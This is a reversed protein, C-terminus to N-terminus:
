GDTGMGTLAALLAEGDPVGLGTCPDWGTVADYAGNNGQSIDRFGPTATGARAAAYLRTQALGLPTGTAQALRALLAAWLPAVASTGGIVLDTGDVRVKYGTRPDAVAAVDPVGRGPGGGVRNPVGASQQWDPLPFVDSIGGGTSGGASGGNWVTESTITAGSADLT